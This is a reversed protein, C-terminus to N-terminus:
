RSWAGAPKREISGAPSSRRCSRWAPRRPEVVIERLDAGAAQAKGSTTGRSTTAIIVDNEPSGPSRACRSRRGRGAGGCRGTGAPAARDVADGEALVARRAGRARQHEVARRAHVHVLALAGRLHAERAEEVVRRDGDRRDVPRAADSAALAGKARRNPVSGRVPSPPSPGSWGSATRPAAVPLASVAARFAAARPGRAVDGGSSSCAPRSFAGARHADPDGRDLSSRRPRRPPSGRRARCWRAAFTSSCNACDCFIFATPWSAPPTACSKLLTSCAIM